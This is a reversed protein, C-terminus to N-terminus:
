PSWTSFLVLAILAVDILVGFIFETFWFVGLVVLSAGAALLVMGQWWDQPIIWGMLSLAALISLGATIWSGIWILRKVQPGDGLLWSRTWLGGPTEAEDRSPVLCLIPHVAGHAIIFLAIVFTPM